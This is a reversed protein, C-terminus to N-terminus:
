NFQLVFSTYFIYFMFFYCAKALFWSYLIGFINHKKKWMEVMEGM